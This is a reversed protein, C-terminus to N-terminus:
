HVNEIVASVENILGSLICSHPCRWTYLPYSFARGTLGTDDITCTARRAMSYLLVGFAGPYRRVVSM